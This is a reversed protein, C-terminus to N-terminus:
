RDEEYAVVHARHPRKALRPQKQVFSAENLRPIDAAADLAIERLHPGKLCLRVRDFSLFRKRGAEPAHLDVAPLVIRDVVGLWDAGRRRKADVLLDGAEAEEADEFVHLIPHHKM